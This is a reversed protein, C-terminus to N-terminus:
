KEGRKIPLFHKPAIYLPSTPYVVSKTKISGRENIDVIEEERGTILNRVTDKIKFEDRM